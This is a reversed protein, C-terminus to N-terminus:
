SPTVYAVTAGVVTTEHTGGDGPLVGLTPWSVSPLLMVYGGHPMPITWGFTVTLPITVQMAGNATPEDYVGSSISLHHVDTLKLSAMVPADFGARGEPLGVPVYAGVDFRVRRAVRIIGVAGPRVRQLSADERVYLSTTADLEFHPTDILGFWAGFVPGRYQMWPRLTVVGFAAELTLRSTVGVAAALAMDVAAGEASRGATRGTFVFGAQGPGYLM